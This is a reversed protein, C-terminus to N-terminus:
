FFIVSHQNSQTFVPWRYMAPLICFLEVKISAFKAFPLISVFKTNMEGVGNELLEYKAVQSKFFGVTILYPSKKIFTFSRKLNREVLLFLYYYQDKM